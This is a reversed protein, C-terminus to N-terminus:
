IERDEDEKFKETAGKAVDYDFGKSLLYRYCKNITLRDIPKNKLYKAAIEYAAEDQALCDTAAKAAADSVGKKRLELEILRAGKRGSVSRAYEEAYSEDDIFGYGTMKETVYDIIPETYGKGALYDRIQKKTKKSASIFNLARDMAKLRESDLQIEDLRSEEIQMGKKIRYRMVTELELGCYFVNDLYVSCRTKDKVQQKVDTVTKM